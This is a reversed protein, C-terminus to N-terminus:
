GVEEDSPIEMNLGTLDAIRKTHLNTEEVKSTTEEVAAIVGQFNQVEVPRTLNRTTPVGIDLDRGFNRKVM